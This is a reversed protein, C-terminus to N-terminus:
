RIVAIVKQGARLSTGATAFNIDVEYMAVSNDYRIPELGVHAVAGDFLKGNIKVEAKNGVAINKIQDENMAVRALMRSTGGLIILPQTQLSSVVTQGVSANCNIVVGDFPATVRSYKLTARARILAANASEYDAETRTLKIYAQQLEHDSLVTRAYLEDAHDKDRRAEEMSDHAIKLQAEGKRVDAVLVKDELKVLIDGSKVHQGVDANVESIVGTVFTGLEVRQSWMLVADFEQALLPQSLLIGTLWWGTKKYFNIKM